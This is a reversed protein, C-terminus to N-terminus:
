ARKLGSANTFHMWDFFPGPDTKRGPAIDEHGCVYEIAYRARIAQALQLLRQYQKSEFASFDSGELEIGISFDNVRERGGWCSVGAHWARALCSVFQTCAGDREILFHSSVKAGTLTAFFPHENADLTATFLKAVYGGGFQGPPLSINHIVLLEPATGNPREDFHLSNIRHAAPWWGQADIEVPAHM